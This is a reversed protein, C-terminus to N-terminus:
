SEKKTPESPQPINARLRELVREIGLIWLKVKEPDQQPIDQRSLWEAFKDAVERIQRQNPEAM